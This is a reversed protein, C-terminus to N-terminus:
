YAGGTINFSAGAPAVKTPEPATIGNFGGSIVPDVPSAQFSPVASTDPVPLPRVNTDGPAPYPYPWPLAYRVVIVLHGRIVHWKGVVLVQRPFRLDDPIETDDGLIGLEAAERLIEDYESPGAADTGDHPRDDATLLIIRGQPTELYPRGNEFVLTGLAAIEGPLIPQRPTPPPECVKKLRIGHEVEMHLEAGDTKWPGILVVDPGRLVVSADTSEPLLAFDSDAIGAGAGLHVVIDGTRTVLFTQGDKRVLTGHAGFQEDNVTFVHQGDGCHDFAVLRFPWQRIDRVHLALGTNVLTWHGVAGYEGLSVDSSEGGQEEQEQLREAEPLLSLQPLILQVPGRPTVLWLRGGRWVLDGHLAVESHNVAVAGDPIHNAVRVAERDATNSPFTAEPSSKEPGSSASVPACAALVLLFLAGIAILLRNRCTGPLAGFLTGPQRHM